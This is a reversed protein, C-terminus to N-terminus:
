EYLCVVKGNEVICGSGFPDARRCAALEAPTCAKITTDPEAKPPPDQAFATSTAALLFAFGFLFKM